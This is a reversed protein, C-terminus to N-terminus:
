LESLHGSRCWFLTADDDYASVLIMETRAAILQLTPRPITGDEGIEPLPEPLTMLTGIFGRELTVRQLCKQVQDKPLPAKLLFYGDLLHVRQEGYKIHTHSFFYDVSSDQILRKPKREPTCTHTYFFAANSSGEKLFNTM